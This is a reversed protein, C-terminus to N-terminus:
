KKINDGIGKNTFLIDKIKQIKYLVELKGRM